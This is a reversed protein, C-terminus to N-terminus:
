WRFSRCAFFLTKFPTNTRENMWALATGASFSFV